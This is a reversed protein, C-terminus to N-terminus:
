NIQSPMSGPVAEADQPKCRKTTSIKRSAGLELPSFWSPQRRRARFVWIISLKWWRALQFRLSGDGHAHFPTFQKDVGMGATTDRLRLLMFRDPVM